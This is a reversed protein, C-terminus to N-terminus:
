AHIRNQNTKWCIFAGAAFNQKSLTNKIDQRTLEVIKDPEM